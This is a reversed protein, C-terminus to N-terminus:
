IMASRKRSILWFCLEVILLIMMLCIQVFVVQDLTNHFFVLLVVQSVGFVAAIIVPIYQELSLFYYVFLNALAFLSTALAYKWLLAGMAVYAEGFLLTIILEPFMYCGIVLGSTLVLVYKLYTQLLRSTNEGNKKAEIVKPLFVMILMWTLFYVVRGILALSAYLGAELNEFYHKVLLIDSNNIVILTCEYLCTILLFNLIIKQDEKALAAHKKLIKVRFQNPFLGVLFSALIGIAVAVVPQFVALAILLFTVCLRGFMELVYSQSLKIFEQRGQHIGRSVSMVFFIPVGIGFLVFVLSSELKFLQQLYKAFIIFLMGVASGVILAYQYAKVKFMKFKEKTFTISFKACLLQLTMAMFSLALLLTILLAVGSFVDPGLWRGLLLNYAYNGANVLLVSLMFWQSASIKLDIKNKAIIM